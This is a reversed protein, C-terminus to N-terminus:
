ANFKRGVTNIFLWVDFVRHLIDERSWVLSKVSEWRRIALDRDGRARAELAHALAKCIDAHQQLYRWSYAQCANNLGINRAITPEFEEILKQVQNFARVAQPDVETKEGRLYVPDFLDTLQKLYEYCKEGDQGFAARFYDEVIDEFSIRSNWLTWGMTVM